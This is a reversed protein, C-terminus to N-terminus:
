KRGFLKSFFGNTPSPGAVPRGSLYATLPDILESVDGYSPPETTSLCQNCIQALTTFEPQMNAGQEPNTPERGNLMRMGLRGFAHVHDLTEHYGVVFEGFGLIRPSNHHDILVSEAQLQGLNLNTSEAFAQVIALSRLWGAVRMPEIPKRLLSHLVSGDVFPMSYFVRDEYAGIREVPILSPHSENTGAVANLASVLAPEDRSGENFLRVLRPKGDKAVARFTSSYGDTWLLKRLQFGHLDPLKVLPIENSPKQLQEELDDLFFMREIASALAPFRQTLEDRDAPQGLEQRACVEADILDLVDDDRELKPIASVYEEVKASRGARLQNILDICALEILSAHTEPECQTVIQDFTADPKEARADRLRSLRNKQSEGM